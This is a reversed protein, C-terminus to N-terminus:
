SRRRGGFVNVGGSGCGSGGWRRRRQWWGLREGTLLPDGLSWKLHRWQGDALIPAGDGFADCQEFLARLLAKCGAVGLHRDAHVRVSDTQGAWRM